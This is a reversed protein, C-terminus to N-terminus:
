TGINKIFEHKGTESFGALLLKAYKKRFTYMIAPKEFLLIEASQSIVTEAKLNDRNTHRHM